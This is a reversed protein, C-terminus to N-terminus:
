GHDGILTAVELSLYTSLDPPFNTHPSPPSPHNMYHHSLALMHRRRIGWCPPRGGEHMGGEGPVAPNNPQSTTGTCM